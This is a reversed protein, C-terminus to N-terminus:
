KKKLKDIKLKTNKVQKSDSGYNELQFTLSQNLKDLTFKLSAEKTKKLSQLDSYISPKDKYKEGLYFIDKFVRTIVESVDQKGKALPLTLYDSGANYTGEADSHHENANLTVMKSSFILRVSFIRNYGM